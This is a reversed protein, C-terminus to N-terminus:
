GSAHLERLSEELRLLIIGSPQKKKKKLKIFGFKKLILQCSKKMLIISTEVLLM